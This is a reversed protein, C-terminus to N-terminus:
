YIRTAETETVPPAIQDSKMSVAFRVDGVGVGKVTLTFVAKAKPALSPLAAFTITQGSATPQTAGGGKVFQQEAPLTCTVAINTGTETGQNTVTITYTVDSGVEIPDPDDVCELLIAPIGKVPFECEAVAESCYTVRASNKVITITNCNVTMKLTRSEGGNLTGLRWVVNSGERQGNNDANRFEVGASVTDTVVVNNAPADGRNTVVIEFTAERGLYRLQPCSKTIELVPAGVAFMPDPELPAPAPTPSLLLSAASLNLLLSVALPMM